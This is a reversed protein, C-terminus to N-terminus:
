DLGRLSEWPMLLEDYSTEFEPFYVVDSGVLICAESM